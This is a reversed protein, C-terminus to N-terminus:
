LFCSKHVALRRGKDGASMIIGHKMGENVLGIRVLPVVLSGDDHLFFVEGKQVGSQDKGTVKGSPKANSRSYLEV